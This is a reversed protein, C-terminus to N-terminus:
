TIGTSTRASGNFCLGKGQPTVELCDSPEYRQIRESPPLILGKPRDEVVRRSIWSHDNSGDAGPEHRRCHDPQSPASGLRGIPLPGECARTAGDVARFGVNITQRWHPCGARPLDRVESSAVTAANAFARLEDAGLAEIVQALVGRHSGEEVSRRRRRDARDNAGANRESRESVSGQCNATSATAATRSASSSTDDDDEQDGTRDTGGDCRRAWERGAPQTQTM